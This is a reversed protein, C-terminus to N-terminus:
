SVVMKFELIVYSKSDLGIIQANISELIQVSLLSERTSGSGAAGPLGYPPSTYKLCCKASNLPSM